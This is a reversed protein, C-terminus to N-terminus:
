VWRDASRRLSTYKSACGRACTRQAPAAAMIPPRAGRRRSRGRRRRRPRSARRPPSRRRPCSCARARRRTAPPRSTGASWPSPSPSTSGSAADRGRRVGHEVAPQVREARALVRDGAVPLQHADHRRHRQAGVRVAERVLDDLAAHRSRGRRGRCGARCRCRPSRRSRRAAVERGALQDDVRRRVRHQLDRGVLVLHRRRLEVRRARGRALHHRPSCATPRTM